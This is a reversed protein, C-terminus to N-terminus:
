LLFALPSGALMILIYAILFVPVFPIGQRIRAKQNGAKKQLISLEELTLGTRSPKVLVKKKLLVPEVLWDGETLKKVPVTKLMSTAEVTHVFAFLYYLGFVLLAMSITLIRIEFPVLITIVLLIATIIQIVRRERKVKPTRMSEMYTKKFEKKNKTALYVSWVLGYVSGTIIWWVGFGLMVHTQIPGSIAIGMVTGMGMFLKADGGGWQGAYYMAYGIAIAVALGILSILLPLWSSEAISLMVAAALGGAILSYNLWDPVERTKMDQYTAAVLGLLLAGHALAQIM